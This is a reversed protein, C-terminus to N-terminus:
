LLIQITLQEMRFVANLSLFSIEMTSHTWPFLPVCSASEYETLSNTRRAWYQSAAARLTQLYPERGARGPSILLKVQGRTVKKEGSFYISSVSSPLLTSKGVEVKMEIHKELNLNIRNSLVKIWIEQFCLKHVPAIMSRTGLFLPQDPASSFYTSPPLPTWLVWEFIRLHGWALFHNTPCSKPEKWILPSTPLLDNICYSYM